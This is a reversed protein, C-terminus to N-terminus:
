VRKHRKKYDKEIEAKWDDCLVEAVMECASSAYPEIYSLVPNDIAESGQRHHDFVCITDTRKLLEPCETYSPRNTDVVMVLTNRNTIELAEESKIFLDAPYGNEESFCEVLPRLSSTVDNLVIQAKKGLVRAACYM